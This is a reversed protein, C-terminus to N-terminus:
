RATVGTEVLKGRDGMDPSGQILTFSGRHSLDSKLLNPSVKGFSHTLGPYLVGALGILLFLVGVVLFTLTWIRPTITVDFPWISFRVYADHLIAQSGYRRPVARSMFLLARGIAVSMIVWPTLGVILLLCLALKGM